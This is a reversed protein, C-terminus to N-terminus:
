VGVIDLIFRSRMVECEPGFLFVAANSSIVDAGDRHVDFRGCLRHAPYWLHALVQNKKGSESPSIWLM